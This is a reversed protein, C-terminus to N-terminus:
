PRGGGAYLVIVEEPIRERPIYAVAGEVERVFAVASEVSAQVIPPRRGLYHEETWYRQLQKRSMKLLDAEFHGRLSDSASYNIPLLPVGRIFRMRMLYIQRVQQETLQKAPFNRNAIVVFSDSGFLKAAICIGLLLRRM